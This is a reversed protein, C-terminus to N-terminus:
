LDAAAGIVAGLEVRQGLALVVAGGEAVRATAARELELVLRGALATIYVIAIPVM